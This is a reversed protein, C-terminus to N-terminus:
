KQRKQFAVSEAHILDYLNEIFDPNLSEKQAQNRRAALMSEYRAAQYAPAQIRKKEQVIDSVLTHRQALLNIISADVTDIQRRLLNINSEPTNIQLPKGPDYQGTCQFNVTANEINKYLNPHANTADIDLWFRFSERQNPIPRSEVKLLNGGQQAIMNLIDSLAGPKHNCEFHITWKSGKPFIKPATGKTGFVVFQTENVHHDHVNPEIITLGKQLLADSGLVAHHPHQSDTLNQAAASTSNSYHITGPFAEVFKKCQEFAKPHSTITTIDEKKIGPLGLLNIKIPLLFEAWIRLSNDQFFMDVNGHISSTSGNQLPVVGLSGPNEKVSEFVTLFSDCQVLSFSTHHPCISALFIEAGHASFSGKPGLCFVKLNKQPLSTM